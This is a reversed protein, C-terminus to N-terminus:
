KSERYYAQVLDPNEDVVENYAKAFVISKETARAKALSNLRGEATEDGDGAASTGLEKFVDGAQGEVAKLMDTIATAADANSEAFKRLAPAVVTHDFTLKTFTDRSKAIAQEDLRAAKEIAADTEAKEIRALLATREGEAKEIIARVEPSLSKRLKKGNADEEDEDAGGDKADEDDAKKNPFAKEFELRQEDSFAKLIDDVSMDKLVDTVSVNENPMKEKRLAGFLARNSQDDASKIVAFGEVMHAPHDVLSVENLRIDTMKSM